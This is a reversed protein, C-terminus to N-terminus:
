MYTGKSNQAVLLNVIVLFPFSCGILCGRVKSKILGRKVVWCCVLSKHWVFITLDSLIESANRSVTIVRCQYEFYSLDLHHYSYMM